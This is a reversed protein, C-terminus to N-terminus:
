FKFPKWGAKSGIGTIARPSPSILRLLFTYSTSYEGNSFETEMWCWMLGQWAESCTQNQCGFWSELYVIPGCIGFRDSGKAVSSAFSNSVGVISSKEEGRLVCNFNGLLLWLDDVVVDNLTAWLHKRVSAKPCAYVVMLMWSRGRLSNVAVHIFFRHIHILRVKTNEEYWLLWIGGVLVRQRLSSGTPRGWSGVFVKLEM